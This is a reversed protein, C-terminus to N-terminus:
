LFNANGVALLVGGRAVATVVDVEGAGASVTHAVGGPWQFVAGYGLTGGGAPAQEIVWMYTAGDQLNTPNSLVDAGGTLTFEFTNGADCDTAVAGANALTVMPTYVQGTVPLTRSLALDIAVVTPAFDNAAGLSNTVVLGPSSTVTGTGTFTEAAAAGTQRVVCRTLEVSRSTCDLTSVTDTSFRCGTATLPGVVNAAVTQGQVETSRLAITGPGQHDIALLDTSISRSIVSGTGGFSITGPATIATAVAAAGAGAATETVRVDHARIESTATTNSLYLVGGAFPADSFACDQINLIVDDTGHLIVTKASVDQLNVGYQSGFGSVMNYTIDGLLTDASQGTFGAVNIGGGSIITSSASYDGPLVPIIAPQFVSAGGGVAANVADQLNNYPAASGIPGVMFRGFETNITICSASTAFWIDAGSDLGKFQLDNGVKGSIISATCSGVSSITCNCSGGGGGSAPNVWPYFRNTGHKISM